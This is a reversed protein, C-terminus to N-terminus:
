EGITNLPQKPFIPRIDQRKVLSVAERLSINISLVPNAGFDKGGFLGISDEETIAMIPINGPTTQIGGTRTNYRLQLNLGDSNFVTCILDPNMGIALRTEYDGHITVHRVYMSFRWMWSGGTAGSLSDTCLFEFIFMWRETANGDSGTMIVNGQWSHNPENYYLNVKAPFSIGNRKLFDGLIAARRLDHSMELILPMHDCGCNNAIVSVPEQIVDAPAVGFTPSLDFVDMFGGGDIILEGLFSGSIVATGATTVGGSPTYFCNKKSVATGDVIVGGTMTISIRALYFGDTTVGGSGVYHIIPLSYAVGGVVVGETPTYHWDPSVVGSEGSTTVGSSQALYGYSSCRQDASGDTTVGGDMQEYFSCVNAVASGGTAVGGLSPYRYQQITVVCGGGATVGGSSVYSYFGNVATASGGIVVGNTPMYHWDPSIVGAEYSTTVGGTPLYNYHKISVQASSGTQVGGSATYGVMKYGYNVESTTAVMGAGTFAFRIGVLASGSTTVSGTGQANWYDSVVGTIGSVVIGGTASLNWQTSKIDALGGTIVGGAAGFSWNSIRFGAEGDTIVGGVAVCTQPPTQCIASGSVFVTGTGTHNFVTDLVFGQGGASSNAETHVSYEKCASLSTFESPAIPTPKNCKLDLVGQTALIEAVPNLVPIGFKLVEEIKWKWNALRLQDCLEPLTKAMLTIVSYKLCNEPDDLSTNGCSPIVCTGRVQWWFLPIDGVNYAFDKDATVYTTTIWTIDLDANFFIKFNSTGNCTVGGTTVRYTWYPAAVATTASGSTVVSGSGSYNPM